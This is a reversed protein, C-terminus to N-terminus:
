RLCGCRCDDCLPTGCTLSGSVGCERTAPKKCRFCKLLSHKHCFKEGARVKEKCEYWATGFTCKM